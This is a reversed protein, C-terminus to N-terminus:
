ETDSAALNKDREISVNLLHSLAPFNVGVLVGPPCLLYELSDRKRKFFSSLLVAGSSVGGISLNFFESIAATLAMRKIGTSKAMSVEVM